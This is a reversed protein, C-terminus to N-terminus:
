VWIMEVGVGVKVDTQESTREQLGVDDPVVSSGAPLYSAERVQIVTIDDDDLREIQIKEAEEATGEISVQPVGLVLAAAAVLM